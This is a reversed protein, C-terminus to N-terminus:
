FSIELLFDKWSTSRSMKVGPKYCFDRANLGTKFTTALPHGFKEGSRHNGSDHTLFIVSLYLIWWKWGNQLWFCGVLIGGVSFTDGVGRSVWFRWCEWRVTEPGALASSGDRWEGLGLSVHRFPGTNNYCFRQSEAPQNPEIWMPYFSPPIEFWGCFKPLFGIKSRIKWFWWCPHQRWPVGMNPPPKVLMWPQSWSSRLIQSTQHSFMSPEFSSWVRLAIIQPAYDM